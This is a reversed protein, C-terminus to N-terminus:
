EHADIQSTPVKAGCKECEIVLEESSIQNQRFPTYEKIPTREPKPPWDAEVNENNNENVSGARRTDSQRNFFNGLAKSVMNVIGSKPESEENQNGDQNHISDDQHVM